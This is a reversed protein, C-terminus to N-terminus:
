TRAAEKRRRPKSAAPAEAAAGPRSTVLDWGAREALASDYSGNFCSPCLRLPMRRRIAQCQSCVVLAGIAAGMSEAAADLSAEDWGTEPADVVDPKAPPAAVIAPERFSAEAEKRTIRDARERKPQAIKLEKRVRRILERAALTAAGGPWSAHAAPGFWFRPEAGGKVAWAFIPTARPQGISPLVQHLPWKFLAIKIASDSGGIPVLAELAGRVESMRLALRLAEAEDRPGTPEAARAPEEEAASKENGVGPDLRTMTMPALARDPQRADLAKIARALVTQNLNGPRNPDLALAGGFFLDEDHLHGWTTLSAKVVKKADKEALGLTGIPQARWAPAGEFERCASGGMVLLHRAAGRCYDLLSLGGTEDDDLHHSRYREDMIGYHFEIHHPRGDYAPAEHLVHFIVIAGSVLKANVTLESWRDWRPETDGTAQRVRWDAIAAQVDRDLPAARGPRCYTREAAATLDSAVPPNDDDIEKDDDIEEDDDDFEDSDDDGLDDDPYEKEDPPPPAPAPKPKAERKPKPPPKVIGAGFRDTAWSEVRKAAAAPELAALGPIPAHAEGNASPAPTAVALTHAFTEIAVILPRDSPEGAIARLVEAARAESRIRRRMSEEVTRELDALADRAVTEAKTAAAEDALAARYETVLDIRDTITESM